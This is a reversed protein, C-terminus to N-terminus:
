EEPVKRADQEAVAESQGSEATQRAQAFRGQRCDFLSCAHLGASRDSMPVPPVVASVIAVGTPVLCAGDGLAM